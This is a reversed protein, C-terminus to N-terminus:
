TRFLRVSLIAHCPHVTEAIPACTSSYIPGVKENAVASEIGEQVAGWCSSLLTVGALPGILNLRVAASVQDRSACYGFLHCAEEPSLKLSCCVIGFIVALHGKTRDTVINKQIEQLLEVSCLDNRERLWSIAVRLLGEGQERSARCAVENAAMTAQLQRDLRQWDEKAEFSRMVFPVQQQMASRLSVHIYDRLSTATEVLGLQAAAEIGASHAFGGTPLMSDAIMYANWSLGQFPLPPEDLSKLTMMDIKEPKRNISPRIQSRTSHIRDKYFEIGFGLPRLSSHLIRYIDENCTAVLRAVHTPGYAEDEEVESIGLLVRGSLSLSDEQVETSENRIRTHASALKHTLDQLRRTVLEVQTGHLIVSCFANFEQLGFPERSRFNAPNLLISEVLFPEDGHKSLATQSQLLDFDWREGRSLRGAGFWDVLIVSAGPEVSVNVTQQFSSTSFSICPDVALVLFGNSAVSAEISSRCMISKDTRKYIRSPGQTIIGLRSSPEVKIHLEHSDGPLLGGGYSSLACVAAGAQQISSSPIPVLRMPARHSVETLRTIGHEATARIRALGLQRWLPPSAM